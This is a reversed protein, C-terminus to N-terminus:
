ALSDESHRMMEGRMCGDVHWKMHSAKKSSMYLRQLKLKLPFYRLVKTPIKKTKSSQNFEDTPHVDSSKWRFVGCVICENVNAHEKSYLMCDSPYVDIKIYHLGLDRLVIKTEYYNSPLTEGELLAEKLLELLITFSKNSWGNLCKMHVLRIILFLKTFKKYGPYLEHEAERLLNYFKNANENLISEFEEHVYTSKESEENPMSMGFVNNLMKEIEDHMDSENTGSNSINTPEYLEYEGNMLWRVYTRAIGNDLLHNYITERKQQLCNNCRICLCPPMEKRLHMILDLFRSVGIEYENNVRLKQMWSKDISM